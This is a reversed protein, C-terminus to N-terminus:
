RCAVYTKPPIKTKENMGFNEKKLIWQSVNVSPQQAYNEPM